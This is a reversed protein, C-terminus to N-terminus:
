AAGGVFLQDHGPSVREGFEIGDTGLVAGSLGWGGSRHMVYVGDADTM